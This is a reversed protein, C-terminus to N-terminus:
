GEVSIISLDTLTLTAFVEQKINNEDTREYYTKRTANELLGHFEKKTITKTNM